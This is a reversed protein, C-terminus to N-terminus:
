RLGARPADLLGDISPLPATSLKRLASATARRDKQEELRKRYLAKLTEDPAEGRAAKAAELAFALEQAFREPKLYGEVAHVIRGDPLAFLACINDSGTGEPLLDGRSRRSGAEEDLDENHGKRFKADPRINKWASVFSKQHLRARPVGAPPGARPDRM